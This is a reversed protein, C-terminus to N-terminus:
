CITAYNNEKDQHFTRAQSYPASSYSVVKNRPFLYDKSISIDNMYVNVDLNLKCAIEAIKKITFNYDGSEWRSVETQTAGIKNAFEKQSMHLKVREKTIGASIQAMIKSALMESVTPKEEFLELLEDISKCYKKNIGM